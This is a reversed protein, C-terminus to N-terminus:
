KLSNIIENLSAIEKDINVWYNEYYFYGIDFDSVTESWPTEIGFYNFADNVIKATEQNPIYMVCCIELCNRIDAKDLPNRQLDWFKVDSNIIGDFQHEYDFCEKENEFETGDNAVYITKTTM